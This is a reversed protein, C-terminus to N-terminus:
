FSHASAGGRFPAGAQESKSLTRSVADSHQDPL